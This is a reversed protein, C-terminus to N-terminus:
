TWLGYTEQFYRVVELNSDDRDSGGFVARHLATEGNHEEASWPELIPEGFGGIIWPWHGKRRAHGSLWVDDVPWAFEPIDFVEEAFFDPRVLVGMWGEFGDAYGTRLINRRAPQVYPRKKLWAGIRCLKDRLHFGVNTAKWLRLVHPHRKDSRRAKGVPAPYDDMPSIAICDEPRAARAKLMRELLYPRYEQDDDCFFLDVDQGAFDRLAPLIKTAPGWDEDVWRIEVGEPVEPPAGDWDPFRRYRRNLYLIVREAPVTQNLLSELTPRLQGFRPPISSLTIIYRQSVREPSQM